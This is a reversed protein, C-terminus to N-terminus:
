IDDIVIDDSNNFYMGLLQKLLQWNKFFIDSGLEIVLNFVPQKLLQRRKADILKFVSVFKSIISGYLKELQM